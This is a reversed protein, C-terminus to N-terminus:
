RAVGYKRRYDRPATGTQQKFVVSLYEPEFGTREAIQWVPMETGVLLEKVRNLQVRLIEERPTRGLLQRFRTELARRAMPCERLVDSVRIGECAHERIYRLAGAIKNDAVALVDSSQRTVVGIPPILHSEPALAEGAMLRSLLAAAEWGVRRANLAISSLPPPSLACLVEDNDVGLVAVQEPVALGCRRCAELVQQGRNDYCAFVAVPKPLGQLWEGILDVEADDSPAPRKARYLACTRGTAALEGAFFAERQNSWNYRVDGCFGFHRFGHQVFHEAAIRAVAADDSKVWPAQPLLRSPTLDILPVNLKAVAEATARNEGRAIVGDGSWTALWAPPPESRGLEAYHVQWPGHNLIYEGIGILLKRAYSNTAEFVLAVRPVAQRRQPAVSATTSRASGMRRSVHRRRVAGAIPNKPKRSRRM